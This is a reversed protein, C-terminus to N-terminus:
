PTRYKEGRMIREMRPGSAAPCDRAASSVAIGKTSPASDWAALASWEDAEPSRRACM